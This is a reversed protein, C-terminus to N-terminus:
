AAKIIITRLVDAVDEAKDTAKELTELIEKLKILEVPDKEKDFLESIAFHYLDDAQNEFSNIQICSENIKEPNKLNRLEGIAKHIEACADSIIQTIKLMEPTFRKPKYLKIRQSAKNIFDAVDDITSTLTHIDERDFPTIFTKNLKEFIKHTIDDGVHEADKIKSFFPVRLNPDELNIMQKFLSSIAVLNQADEEFLPFFTTDKPVFIKFLRDIAM